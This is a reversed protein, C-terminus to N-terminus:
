CLLFRSVAKRFSNSFLWFIFFNLASSIIVMLNNVHVFFMALSNGIFAEAGISHEIVDFFTSAFRSILFKVTIAIFINESTIKESSMFSVNMKARDYSAASMKNWIKFSMFFILIYPCVSYFLFSGIIRYGIVYSPSNVLNTRYILYTKDSENFVVSIEYVRPFSFCLAFLTVLALTAHIRLSSSNLSIVANTFPSCLTRYREFMLTFMLLVSASFTFNCMMYRFFFSTEDVVVIKLFFDIKLTTKYMKRALIRKPLTHM